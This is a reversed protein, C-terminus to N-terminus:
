GAVQGPDRPTLKFHVTRGTKARGLRHTL